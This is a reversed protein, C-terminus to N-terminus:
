PGYKAGPSTAVIPTNATSLPCARAIKRKTSPSKFATGISSGSITPTVTLRDLQRVPNVDLDGGRAKTRRAAVGIRRHQSVLDRKPTRVLRLRLGSTSIKRASHGPMTHYRARHQHHRRAGIRLAALKVVSVAPMETLSSARTRTHFALVSCIFGLTSLRIMSSAYSFSGSLAFASNPPSNLVSRASKTERSVTSATVM